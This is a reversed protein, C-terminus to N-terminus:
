RVRDAHKSKGGHDQEQGEEQIAQFLADFSPYANVKQILFEGQGGSKALLVQQELMEVIGKLKGERIEDELVKLGIGIVEMACMPGFIIRLSEHGHMDRWQYRGFHSWSVGESTRGDRYDVHLALAQATHQVETAFGKELTKPKATKEALIKALPASRVTEDM